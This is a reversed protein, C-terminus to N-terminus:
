PKPDHQYWYRFTLDQVGGRRGLARMGLVYRHQLGWATMGFGTTGVGFDEGCTEVRKTSM